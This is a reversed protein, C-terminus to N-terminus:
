KSGPDQAKVKDRYDQMAYAFYLFALVLAAPWWYLAVVLGRGRVAGDHASLSYAPDLTSYLLVPFLSAAGAVLLGVIVGCGGLFARADQRTRQGSVVAGVGGACLAIGLWAFPRHSMGVFLAPRVLATEATVVALLLFVAPWLWRTLRASRDQVTGETKVVLYSAGHAALCAVTFAAVSLTYWDLIGVRGHTTFDTFFSLSFRGGADLPVGRVLNGLAAGLFGALAVSAAAFGCDWFSRWMPDDLHSGLEVSLGRWVLSWLLVFVALYFGALTVGLVGPFAVFLTGGAAVLWVEHWSWIPTLAEVVQRREAPTKAVAYHVIGAGINWGDLVAYITLTLAVLGFWLEIM